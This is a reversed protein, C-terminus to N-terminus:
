PERVCITYYATTKAVQVTHWTKTSVRFIYGNAQAAQDTASSWLYSAAAPTTYVQDIGARASGKLGVNMEAYTAVRWDSYGNYRLTHCYSAPDNDYTALPGLALDYDDTRVGDEADNEEADPHGNVSFDWVTQHWSRTGGFVRSWVVGGAQMDQCGGNQTQWNASPTACEALTHHLPIVLLNSNVAPINLTAGKWSIPDVSAKLLITENAKDYSLGSFTALGNTATVTVSTGNNVDNVWLNGTAPTVGDSLYARLTVDINMGRMRAGDADYITIAPQSAWVIGAAYGDAASNPQTTFVLQTPPDQRVCVVKMSSTKASTNVMLNTTGYRWANAPTTAYTASTWINTSHFNVSTTPARTTLASLTTYDPLFWDTYGSEELNKCYHTLSSDTDVGPVYSAGTDYDNIKGNDESDATNMDFPADDWVADFWTKNATSASSFIMGNIKMKCGGNGNIFDIASASTQCLAWPYNQNITINGSYVDNFGVASAKIRITEATNHAIGTFTAVGSVANVTTTGVLNGAGDVATLTVPYNAFIDTNNLSDKFAIVPQTEFPVNVGFGKTLAAPQTQFVMDVARPKRVCRVYQLTNASISAATVGTSINYRCKNNATATCGNGTRSSTWLNFNSNPLGTNAGNSRAAVVEGVTPLRWDEYGSESLGHCYAAVNADQTDAHVGDVDDILTLANEWAEPEVSTYTSDWVAQHWTYTGGGTAGWVLGSILDLCGGETTVYNAHALCQASPDVQGVNFPNSTASTLGGASAVITINNEQLNYRVNTYQARGSSANNTLTGALAGGGVGLSLTVANTASSVRNGNTDQIEVVPQTYFPSNTTAGNPQQYFALKSAPGATSSANFLVQTITGTSMTVSIANNNTGAVVGLQVTATAEGSADTLIPQATIISGGGGVIAFTVSVNEVPINGSNLVRIKLPTALNQGAIGTQSNGSVAIIQDEIIATTAEITGTSTTNPTINYQRILTIDDVTASITGSSVITPSFIANISPNGSSIALDTNKLTGTAFWTAAIERVFSGEEDVLVTRIAFSSGILVNTNGVGILNSQRMIRLYHKRKANGSNTTTSKIGVLEPISNNDTPNCGVLFSILFLSIFHM